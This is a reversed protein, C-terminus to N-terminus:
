RLDDWMAYVHFQVIERIEYVLKLAPPGRHQKDPNPIREHAAERGTLIRCNDAPDLEEKEGV